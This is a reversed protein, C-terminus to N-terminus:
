SRGTQWDQGPVLYVPKVSSKEVRGVGDRVTLIRTDGPLMDFYDDDLHIDAPLGLSVAHSYGSSKLTVRYDKGVTDISVVSVTSEAKQYERFPGTRLIAPHASGGRVFVLGRTLDAKPVAFEHVMGKSFAPLTISTKATDYKGDFGAYGYEVEVTQEAPTDNIGMVRVTKKDGPARLVFKIPAFARKVYYYSPKRDLYYDIITWGVEGWTDNYMWFLSGDNRPYFRIAELSYNYMLGQVLRAYQLYDKLTLNDPNTYHKRIGESVTEKEFTNNHLNWIKDNRVVPKGDYYKSITAESCPGIYGYESVFRSSVTDYSEPSIRDEMKDSMTCERWHHRDGVENDNPLKGGYPSSRWYPIEPCNTRTIAPIIENYIHLGGSTLHTRDSGFYEEFLWQNENNGCWLGICPHRRLRKTQYDIEKAVLNRFSEKDDPFMACAFMFDHWLLIGYEDCYDYFEDREYIGGGWVRLMNFNCDRAERVLTEYKEPTVRAYLSDAPIWDGGKSYIDVGNVRLAFRRDNDSYKELNLAVTRIGFRVPDAKHTHAATKVTVEVTYLPQAGAGNPWWLKANSIIADFDVYNIGSVALIGTTKTLVTAGEFKLELLIEAEQTSIPLLSEFEIEFRLKADKGTELTVPQVRTVAVDGLFEIRADKMIGITAIRPGWDWGYVYQPKRLSSRIKEGRDGRGLEYETCVHDALYDYDEKAIREPGATLRVLLTNEGKRLWDKLETTFPFHASEHTGIHRGNIFIDAFLDLSELVLRANRCSLDADSVTFDRRFWWSKREIWESDYCYDAAVPDKIVGAKILPMHVDCPLSGADIYDEAELIDLARETGVSLDRYLLKWHDRLKLIM